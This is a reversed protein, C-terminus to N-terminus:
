VNMMVKMKNLLVKENRSVSVQSINLEKAAEEQTYNKYYRLTLLKREELSLKTIADKLDIMDNVRETNDVGLTDYVTYEEDNLEDNLSVTFACKAIVDNIIREDVKMFSSVESISVERDFRNTLFSKSQLYAKYLKFYDKSVRINRNDTSLASIEGLIYKYAYSSFNPNKNEDYNNYAKILGIVGAQFADEIEVINKFKIAISYIMNKDKELISSPLQKM